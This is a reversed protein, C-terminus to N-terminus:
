TKAAGESTRANRTCSSQHEGARMGHWLKTPSQLIQGLLKLLNIQAFRNATVKQSPSSPSEPSFVVVEILIIFKILIKNIESFCQTHRETRRCQEIHESLM